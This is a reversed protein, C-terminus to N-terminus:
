GSLLVSKEGTATQRCCCCCSASFLTPNTLRSPTVHTDPSPHTTAGVSHTRSFSPEVRVKTLLVARSPRPAPLGAGSQSLPTEGRM